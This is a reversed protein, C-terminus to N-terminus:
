LVRGRSRQGIRMESVPSINKMHVWPSIWGPLWALELWGPQHSSARLPFGNFLVIQNVAYIMCSFFHMYCYNVVGSFVMVHWLARQKDGWFKAYANNGTERLKRAVSALTFYSRTSLLSLPEPFRGARDSNLGHLCTNVVRKEKGAFPEYWRTIFPNM